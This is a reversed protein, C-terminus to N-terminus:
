SIHTVTATVAAESRTSSLTVCEVYIATHAPLFLELTGEMMEWHCEPERSQGGM